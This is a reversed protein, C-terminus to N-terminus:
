RMEATAGVSRLEEVFRLADDHSLSTGVLAPASDVKKKAEALGLHTFKRVVKIAQIQRPRGDLLVM